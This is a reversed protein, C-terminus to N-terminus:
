KRIGNWLLQMSKKSKKYNKKPVSIMMCYTNERYKFFNFAMVLKQNEFSAKGYFRIFAGFKSGIRQGKSAFKVNTYGSQQLLTTYGLMITEINDGTTRVGGINHFLRKGFAMSDISVLMGNEENKLSLMVTERRDQRKLIPEENQYWLGLPTNIKVLNYTLSLRKRQKKITEPNPQKIEPKIEPKQKPTDQQKKQVIKIKKINDKKIDAELKNEQVKPREKEKYTVLEQKIWKNKFFVYGNSRMEKLSYWKRNHFVLGKGQLDNTTYWMGNHLVYGKQELNKRLLWGNSTKVYGLKQRATEHDPAILLIDNYLDVIKESMENKSCWNVLSLLGDIDKKERLSHWKKQFIQKPTQRTKEPVKKTSLKEHEIQTDENEVFETEKVGNSSFLIILILVVSFSGFIISMIVSPPTNKKRSRNTRRTNRSRSSRHKKSSM